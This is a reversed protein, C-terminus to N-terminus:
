LKNFLKSYYSDKIQNDGNSHSLFLDGTISGENYNKSQSQEM